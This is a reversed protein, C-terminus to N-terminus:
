RVMWAILMLLVLLSAGAILMLLQDARRKQEAVQEKFAQCAQESKFKQGMISRKGDGTGRVLVDRNLRKRNATRLMGTNQKVSAIMAAIASAGNM